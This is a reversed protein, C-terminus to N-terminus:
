NWKTLDKFNSVVTTWPKLFKWHYVYKFYPYVGDYNYVDGESDHLIIYDANDKWRIADIARRKTIHDILIVSWHGQVKIDGWNTVLRISHNKSQFTKSFKYYEEVDEYSVLKRRSEACLWHLLPTSFLGAGLEMVSGDTMQVAKIVMPM